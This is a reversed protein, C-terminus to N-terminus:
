SASLLSMFFNKFKSLKVSGGKYGKFQSTLSMLILSLIVFRVEAKNNSLSKISPQQTDQNNLNAKYALFMIVKDELSIGM